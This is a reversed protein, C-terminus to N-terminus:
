KASKYTGKVFEYTADYLRRIEPDGMRSADLLAKAGQYYAKIAGNLYGLDIGQDLYEYYRDRWKGGEKDLMRGEGEIEIGMNYQLALDVTEKFRDLPVNDRFFYNPQMIAVDFGLDKWERYGSAKFYPIWYFKLGKGHLYGAVAQVTPVESKANFNIKEQLWYYGVLELNQFNKEKLRALTQDVYWQVADVRDRVADEPTRGNASFNESVGDGDVDGFDELVTHPNPIAIIIKSKHGPQNLEKAAYATAQDFAAIQQGDAFLRDIYWQWDVKDAAASRAVSDFAKKRNSQLGLFLFGDFFWDVVKGNKDLYAVYPLADRVPWTGWSVPDYHGSYILMVNSLNASAPTNPPFFGPAGKPAPFVGSKVLTAAPAPRPGALFRAVAPEAVGKSFSLEYGFTETQQKPWSAQFYHLELSVYGGVSVGSAIKLPKPGATVTLRATTDTNPDYVAVYDGTRETADYRFWGDRVAEFPTPVGEQYEDRGKLPVYVVPKQGGEAFALLNLYASSVDKYDRRTANTVKYEVQIATANEPITYTKEVNYLFADADGTIRIVAKDGGGQVVEARYAGSRYMEWADWNNLVGPHDSGLGWKASVLNPGGDLKVSFIRGGRAPSFVIELRGNTVILDTSGDAASKEVVTVGAAATGATFWVLSLAVLSLTVLTQAKNSRRM